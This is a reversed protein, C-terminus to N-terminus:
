KLNEKAIGAKTIFWGTKGAETIYESRILAEGHNWEMADRVEQLTVSRGTLESVSTQVQAETQPEGEALKLVERVSKRARELSLVPKM